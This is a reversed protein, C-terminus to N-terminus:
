MTVYLVVRNYRNVLCGTAPRHPGSDLETSGLGIQIGSYGLVTGCQHGGAELNIRSAEPTGTTGKEGASGPMAATSQILTSSFPYRTTCALAPQPHDQRCQM